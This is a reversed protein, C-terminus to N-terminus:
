AQATNLRAGFSLGATIYAILVILVGLPIHYALMQADDNSELGLLLQGHVLGYQVVCIALLTWRRRYKTFPALVVLLLVVNYLIGGVVLHITDYSIADSHRFFSFSGLMPQVTTMIAALVALARFAWQVTSRV